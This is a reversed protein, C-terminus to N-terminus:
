RGALTKAVDADNKEGCLRRRRTYCFKTGRLCGELRSYERQLIQHKDYFLFSLMINSLKQM